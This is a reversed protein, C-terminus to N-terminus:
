IDTWSRDSLGKSHVHGYLLVARWVMLALCKKSAKKKEELCAVAM